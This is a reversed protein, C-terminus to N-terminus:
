MKTGKLLPLPTERVPGAGLAIRAGKVAVPRGIVLQNAM